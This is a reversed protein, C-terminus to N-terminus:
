MLLLTWRFSSMMMGVVGLRNVEVKDTVTPTALRRPNVIAKVIHALPLEEKSGISGIGKDVPFLYTPTNTFLHHLPHTPLYRHHLPHTPSYCHHLPHTSSATIYHHIATIYHTHQHITTIYHFEFAGVNHAKCPSPRDYHDEILIVTSLICVSPFIVKPKNVVYSNM